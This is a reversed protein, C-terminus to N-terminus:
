SVKRKHMAKFGMFGVAAARWFGFGREPLQSGVRPKDAAMYIYMEAKDKEDLNQGLYPPRHALMMRALMCIPDPDDSVDIELPPISAETVWKMTEDDIAGHGAVPGTVPAPEQLFSRIEVALFHVLSKGSAIKRRQIEYCSAANRQDIARVLLTEITEESPHKAM